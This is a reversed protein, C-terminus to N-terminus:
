GARQVPAQPATARTGLWIAALVAMLGLLHQLAPREGLWLIGVAAAALPMLSTFVGALNADVRAVGRYWLIFSLVSATLAYFVVEGWVLRPVTGLDFGRLEVLAPPLFLCLSVLNVGTSLQLPGM